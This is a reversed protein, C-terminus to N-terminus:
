SRQLNNVFEDYTTNKENLLNQLYKFSADVGGNKELNLLKEYLPKIVDLAKQNPKRRVSYYGVINESQDLSATINAFVWYFSGDFSRNKVYAFIEQKSEIKEWLMKFIVKPMDPHRVINHQKGILENGKAGVINIFPVNCYTIRGSKDTKSVLFASESVQREINTTINSM